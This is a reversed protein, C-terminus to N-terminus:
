RGGGVLPVGYEALLGKIDGGRRVIESDLFSKRTSDGRRVGMSISYVFPLFPTDIRPLVPTVVLPTASHKAYYGALPGWAVALDVDRKVVADLLRSPPSPENYDGYIMYGHINGGLGRRMLAVAAPSNAYDDGMMHIGIRARRLAPDDFSTVHWPRDARSVFVYTSQYYPMTAAVMDYGSPVGIVVDCDGAKLTNRVFGRRQPWWTYELRAHLDLALMSAIRNEFGQQLSDSFPLNNPDSCVRLANRTARPSQSTFALLAVCSAFRGVRAAWRTGGM